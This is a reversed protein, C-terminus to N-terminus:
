KWRTLITERQFLQAGFYILAVDVVVMIVIGLLMFSMNLVFLGALQGFLVGLLPVILVGAMQEAVRPDNVRSSVIVALNVAAIALLPGIVLVALLWVPGTIHQILAPTAGVLPLLLLFAGFCLWSVVIAPLSSAMAKGTLLEATTVPTALLPELSRTTKEGVISYAAIATPIILPMMMFMLMFENSIYIQLCEMGSIDGCANLVQPPVDATSSNSMKSGTSSIGYLIGLPMVTFLIPLIAITFIVMRNKFVENWEKDIITRIRDMNM